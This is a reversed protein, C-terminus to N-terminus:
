QKKKLWYIVGGLSIISILGMLLSFGPVAPYPPRVPRVRPEPVPARKDIDIFEEEIFEEVKFAVEKEVVGAPIKRVPDLNLHSEFIHILAGGRWAELRVLYNHNNPVTFGCEVMNTVGKLIMIEKWEEYAMINSEFHIVNLRFNVKYDYKSEIFFRSMIEIDNEEVDIIKFDVGRFSIDHRREEPILTDLHKLNFSRRSLTNGEKEVEFLIRYDM